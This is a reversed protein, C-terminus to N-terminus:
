RLKGARLSFSTDRFSPEGLWPPRTWWPRRGQADFIARGRARTWLDAVAILKDNEYILTYTPSIGTRDASASRTRVMNPQKRALGSDAWGAIPRGRGTRGRVASM